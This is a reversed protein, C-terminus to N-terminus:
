ESVWESAEERIRRQQVAVDVLVADAVEAQCILCIRFPACASKVAAWARRWACRSLSLSASPSLLLPLSADECAEGAAPLTEMAGHRACGQPVDSARM